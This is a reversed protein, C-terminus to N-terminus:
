FNEDQCMPCLLNRKIASLNKGIIWGTIKAQNLFKNYKDHKKTKASRLTM